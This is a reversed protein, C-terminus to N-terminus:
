TSNRWISLGKNCVTLKGIKLMILTPGGYFLQIKEFASYTSAVQRNLFFIVVLCSTSFSASYIGDLACRSPCHSDNWLVTGCRGTRVLKGGGGMRRVVLAEDIKVIDLSWSLRVYGLFEYARPFWFGCGHGRCNTDWDLEEVLSLHSRLGKEGEVM